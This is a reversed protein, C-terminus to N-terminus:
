DMGKISQDWYNLYGLKKYIDKQFYRQVSGINLRNLFCGFIIKSHYHILPSEVIGSKSIIYTLDPHYADFYIKPIKIVKVKSKANVIELVKKIELDSLSTVWFSLTKFLLQNTEAFSAVTYGQISASGIEVEDGVLYKLSNAIGTTQCNSTFLIECLEKKSIFM